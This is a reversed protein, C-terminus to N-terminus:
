RKPFQETPTGSVRQTPSDPRSLHPTLRRRTRPLRKLLRDYEADSIEPQSRTYYLTDHHSIEERLHDIEEKLSLTKRAGM